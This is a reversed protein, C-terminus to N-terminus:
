DYWCYCKECTCIIEDAYRFLELFAHQTDADTPQGRVTDAVVRAGPLDGGIIYGDLVFGPHSECFAIMQEFTPAGSQSNKPDAFGESILRRATEPTMSSFRTGSATDTVYRPVIAGSRIIKMRERLEAVTLVRGYKKAQNSDM